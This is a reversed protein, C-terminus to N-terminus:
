YGCIILCLQLVRVQMGTKIRVFDDMNESLEFPVQKCFLLTLKDRLFIRM